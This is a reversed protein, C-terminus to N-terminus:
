NRRDVPVDRVCYGNITLKGVNKEVLAFVNEQLDNLFSFYPPPKRFILTRQKKDKFTNRTRMFRDGESKFAGVSKTKKHLTARNRCFMSPMSNPILKQSSSYLFTHLFLTFITKQIENQQVRRKLYQINNPIKRKNKSQLAPKPPQRNKM